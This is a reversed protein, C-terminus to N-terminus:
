DNYHNGSCFICPRMIRQSSREGGFSTFVEASAMQSQHVRVNATQQYIPAQGESYMRVNNQLQGKINVNNQIQGKTHFAYHYVNELISYFVEMSWM